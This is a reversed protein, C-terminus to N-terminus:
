SDSLSFLHKWSTLSQTDFVVQLKDRVFSFKNARTTLSLRDLIKTHPEMKVERQRLMNM